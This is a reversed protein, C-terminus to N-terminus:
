GGRASCVQSLMLPDMGPPRRIHLGALPDRALANMKSAFEPRLWRAPDFLRAVATRRPAEVAAAATKGPPTVPTTTDCSPQQSPVWHQYPSIGTQQIPQVIAAAGSQGAYALHNTLPADTLAYGTAPAYLDGGPALAACASPGPQYNPDNLRVSYNSCGQAPCGFYTDLDKAGPCAPDDGPQAPTHCSGIPMAGHANNATQRVYFFLMGTSSDFFYKSADVPTGDPNSLQALSTAASLKDTPFMCFSGQATSGAPCSGSAPVGMLGQAPCGKDPDLNAPNAQDRNNCTRTSQPTQRTDLPTYFPRLAPDAANVGNGGWSKYGTLITFDGNPPKGQADSYCIGVRVYFPKQDMNSKVADTFGIHVLAPMGPAKAPNAAPATTKQVTVTYGSGSAVKPEWIGLGSRSRLTMSRHQGADVSDKTFTMDQWQLNNKDPAPYSAEFELTAMNAPSMLSTPRGEYQTDQPGTAHCEDVANGSRNFELNNLSIPYEGPVPVGSADVVQYGSLTGDLDLIATNKDGDLFDALKVKDTYIQHRLTVNDFSLERSVTATPYASQNSQFWGLAADGEYHQTGGVPYRTFRKLFDQDDRTLLPSPDDLYNVFHDHVIRVPGDYIMYGASNWFPTQYGKFQFDNANKNRDVCGAGEAVNAPCPGWRDVNNTSVGVLVSEKLMAWVGPANGDLGGSSVLSVADRSTAFRGAEIVSWVPRMWVGRNRIRTATLGKFHAIVSQGVPSGGVRPFMQETVVGEDTEGFLGDFCGHVRNNEFKGTAEFKQEGITPAVYWYGKGQGQCGAISNGVLATSPNGIWFGSAQEVYYVTAGADTKAKCPVDSAFVLGGQPNSTYCSGHTPASQNGTNPVNLGNYNNAPALNDGQWYGATVTTASQPQPDLGFSNSMAGVGLNGTFSAGQEQADEEYFLQGVARACVNNSVAVNQSMHLTVCKNYSHHISNSDVLYQSKSADGVMHFHIPYSGLRAKGFKELEVGQISAQAFGPLIRIEGGWHHTQDGPDAGASFPTDTTFSINRSILGVEAREDVGFNTGAGAGFNADSPPGPDAGGFHYHQLPQKLTLVSGSGEAAIEAIQVFESEFPSFSTTAVVIWDGAQWAGVGAGVNAALHLRREGGAAVPAGIGKGTDQYAAPGAPQSLTTWNVGGPAVGKVGYLRLSGGAQVEIGKDAGSGMDKAGSSAVPTGTFKVTVHSAPNNRGVPCQATGISMTGAVSIGTTDLELQDFVVPVALKGQATITIKGLADAGTFSRDIIVNPGCGGAGIVVNRQADLSCQSLPVPAVVEPASVLGLKSLVGPQSDNFATPCAAAAAAAASDFAAANNSSGGCGALGAVTAIALSWAARRAFRGM